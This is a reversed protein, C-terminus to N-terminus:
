MIRCAEMDGGLAAPDEEDGRIWDDGDESDEEENESVVDDDEVNLQETRTALAIYERFTVQSDNSKVRRQPFYPEASSFEGFRLQGILRM